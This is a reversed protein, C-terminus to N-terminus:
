YRARSPIAAMAATAGCGARSAAGDARSVVPQPTAGLDFQIKLSGLQTQAFYALEEAAQDEGLVKIVNQHIRLKTKPFLSQLTVLNARNVGIFEQVDAEELVYLREMM